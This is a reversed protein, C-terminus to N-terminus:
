QVFKMLAPSGFPSSLSPVGMGRQSVQLASSGRIIINPLPFAQV